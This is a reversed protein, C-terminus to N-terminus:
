VVKKTFERTHVPRPDTTRRKDIHAFGGPIQASVNAAHTTSPSGRGDNDALSSAPRGDEASYSPSAWQRMCDKGGHSGVPSNTDNKKPM